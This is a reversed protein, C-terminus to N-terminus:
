ILAHFLSIAHFDSDGKFISIERVLAVNLGRIHGRRYWILGACCLQTWKGLFYLDAIPVQGKPDANATEFRRFHPQIPM